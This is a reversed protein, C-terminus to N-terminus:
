ALAANAYGVTSYIRGEAFGIRREDLFREGNVYLGLVVRVATLSHSESAELYCAHLGLSLILDAATSWFPILGDPDAVFPALAGNITFAWSIAMNM